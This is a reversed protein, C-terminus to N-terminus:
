KVPLDFEDAKKLLWESFGSVSLEKIGKKLKLISGSKENLKIKLLESVVNIFNTYIQKTKESISKDRTLYHKYTDILSILEEYYSLEYYIIVLLNKIDLKMNSIELNIKSLNKLAAEYNGKNFEIMATSYQVIEERMVPDVRKKYDSVFQESWGLEKLNSANRVANTFFYPEIHGEPFLNKEVIRKTIEFQHRRYEILGKNVMEYCYQILVLEINYHDGGTLKSEFKDRKRQLEFFYKEEGTNLLMLMNYYLTALTVEGPDQESLYKTVESHFKLDFKVNLGREWAGLRIYMLMSVGVFYEIFEDLESQLNSIMSKENRNLRQWNMVTTYKYKSEYYGFSRKSAAFLADLSKSKKEFLSLMEKERLKFILKVNYELTSERFGKVGIYEMVLGTVLSYLKRMNVSNYKKGPYVEAFINEDTLTKSDFSPYYKKAAEHFRIVESRNNFFPSRIFKGFEKLEAKNLKGLTESLQSNKM